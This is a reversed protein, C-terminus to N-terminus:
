RRIGIPKITVLKPALWDSDLIQQYQSNLKQLYFDGVMVNLEPEVGNQEDSIKFWLENSIRINNLTWKM